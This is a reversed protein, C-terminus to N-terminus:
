SEAFISDVYLDSRQPIIAFGARRCYRIITEVVWRSARPDIIIQEIFGRPDLEINIYSGEAKVTPIHQALTILRVENEYKFAARKLLGGSLGGYENMTDAIKKLETLDAYYKVKGLLGYNIQNLQKFRNARTQILVGEQQPSYIRWLADSEPNLSWSQGYMQRYLKALSQKAQRDKIIHPMKYLAAEWKDPWSNINTLHTKNTEVWSLFQALSMYKYLKTSEEIERSFELQRKEVM